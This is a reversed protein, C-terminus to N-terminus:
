AFGPYGDIKDSLKADTEVRHAKETLRHLSVFAVDDHQLLSELVTEIATFDVEWRQKEGLYRAHTEGFPLESVADKTTEDNWLTVKQEGYENERWGLGIQVDVHKDNLQGRGCYMTGDDRSGVILHDARSSAATHFATIPKMDVRAGCKEPPLDTDGNYCASLAYRTMARYEARVSNEADDHIDRQSLQYTIESVPALNTFKVQRDGLSTELFGICFPEWRDFEDSGMYRNVFWPEIEVLVANTSKLVEFVYTAKQEVDGLSVNNSDDADYATFVAEIGDVNRHEYVPREAAIETNAAIGISEPSIESANPYPTTDTTDTSNQTTLPQTRTMFSYPSYPNPYPVSQAANNRM